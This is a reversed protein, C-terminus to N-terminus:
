PPATPASGAPARPTPSPSLATGRAIRRPAPRPPPLCISAVLRIQLVAVGAINAPLAVALTALGGINTAVGQGAALAVHSRILSDIADEVGNRRVLHGAATAKAGPLIGAGNIATELLQRLVNGAVEPARQVLTKGDNDEGAM